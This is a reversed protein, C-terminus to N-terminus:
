MNNSEDSDKNIDDDSSIKTSSDEVVKRKKSPPQRQEVYSCRKMFDFSSRQNNSAQKPQSRTICKDYHDIVTLSVQMLLIDLM